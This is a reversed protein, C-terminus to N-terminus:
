RAFTRRAARARARADAALTPPRRRAACHPSRRRALARRGGGGGRRRVVRQVVHRGERLRGSARARPLHAPRARSGPVPRVDVARSRRFIGADLVRSHRVHARRRRRRRPAGSRRARRSRRFLRPLRRLRRGSLVVAAADAFAGARRLRELRAYPRGLDAYNTYSRNDPLGLERSAFARIEQARVLRGQARRRADDRHGRRHAEGARPSRDPRRDGALLVRYRLVRCPPLAAAAVVGVARWAALPAMRRPAFRAASLGSQPPTVPTWRVSYDQCAAFLTITIGASGGSREAPETDFMGCTRRMAGQRPMAAHARAGGAGAQGVDVLARACAADRHVLLHGATGAFSNRLKWVSGGSIVIRGAWRAAPVRRGVSM